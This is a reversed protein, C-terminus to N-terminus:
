PSDDREGYCEFHQTLRGDGFCSGFRGTSNHFCHGNLLIVRNFAAHVEGIKEWNQPDQMYAAQYALQEGKPAGVLHGFVDDIWEESLETAGTRSDKYYAVGGQCHEPLSLYVIGSWSQVDQHVPSTEWDSAMALRFKGQDFPPDKPCPYGCDDDIRDILIQRVEEWDTTLDVAESGPYTAGPKRRFRLSEAITRVVMPDEYFDDFVVLSKKM